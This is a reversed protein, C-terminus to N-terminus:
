NTDKLELIKVQKKLFYEIVKNINEKQEHMMNRLMNLMKIIVIYLEKNPLEYAETIKVTPKQLNIKNRSQAMNGQKKGHRKVKHQYTCM